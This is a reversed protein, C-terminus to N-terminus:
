QIELTLFPQKLKQSVGKTEIMLKDGRQILDIMDELGIPQLNEAKAVKQAKISVGDRVLFITISLNSNKLDEATKNAMSYTIEHSLEENQFDDFSLTDGDSLPSENLYYEITISASNGPEEVTNKVPYLILASNIITFLITVIKM